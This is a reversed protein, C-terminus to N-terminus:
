YISPISAHIPVQRMARKKNCQEHKVLCVRCVLECCCVIHNDRVSGGKHEGSTRPLMCAFCCYLVHCEVKKAVGENQVAKSTASFTLATSWARLRESSSSVRRSVVLRRRTCVWSTSFLTHMQNDNCMARSM